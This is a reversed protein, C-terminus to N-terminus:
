HCHRHCFTFFGSGLAPPDIGGDITVSVANTIHHLFEMVVWQEKVFFAHEGDDNIKIMRWSLLVNCHKLTFNSVDMSPSKVENISNGPADRVVHNEFGRSKRAHDHKFQVTYEFCLIAICGDNVFDVEGLLLRAIVARTHRDCDNISADITKM